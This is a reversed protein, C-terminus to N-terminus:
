FILDEPEEEEWPDVSVDTVLWDALTFEDGEHPELPKGDAMFGGDFTLVISSNYNVKNFNSNFPIYVSEYELAGTGGGWVYSGNIIIQCKLEVYSQKMSDAYSISKPNSATTTWKKPIQPIWVWNTDTILTSVSSKSNYKVTVPTKLKQSFTGTKTKDATWTGSSSTTKHYSFKGSVSLNHVIIENIIVTADKLNNSLKCKFTPYALAGYFNIRVAGKAKNKTTNLNSGFFLNKPKVSDIGYVFEQTKSTMKVNSLSDVNTFTHSLAWFSIKTDMGPWSVLGSAKWAAGTWYYRVNNGKKVTGSYAMIYFEQIMSSISARSSKEDPFVPIIEVPGGDFSYDESEFDSRNSCQCILSAIFFVILFIRSKYM